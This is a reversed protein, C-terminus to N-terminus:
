RGATAKEPMAYGAARLTPLWRQREYEAREHACATDWWWLTHLPVALDIALEALQDDEYDVMPLAITVEPVDAGAADLLVLRSVLLARDCAEAAHDLAERDGVARDVHVPWVLRSCGTRLAYYAVTVLENTASEGRSPDADVPLPALSGGVIPVGMAKTQLEVAATQVGHTPEWCRARVAGVASIPSSESGAKGVAVTEEAAMALAVLSALGGDCLVMANTTM